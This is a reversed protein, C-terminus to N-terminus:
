WHLPVQPAEAIKRAQVPQLGRRMEPVRLPVPAVPFRVEEVQRRSWRAWRRRNRNCRARAERVWSRRFRVLERREAPRHV